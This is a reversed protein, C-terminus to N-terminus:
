FQEDGLDAFFTVDTDTASVIPSASGLCVQSRLRQTVQEMAVRGRQTSDVRAEVRSSARQSVDVMGM